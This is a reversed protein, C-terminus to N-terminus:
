RELQQGDGSHLRCGARRFTTRLTATRDRTPGDRLGGVAHEHVADALNRTANNWARLPLAYVARPNLVRQRCRTNAAM